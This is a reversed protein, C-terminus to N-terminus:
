NTPRVRALRDDVPTSFLSRKCSPQSRVAQVLNLLDEQVSLELVRHTAHPSTAYSMHSGM